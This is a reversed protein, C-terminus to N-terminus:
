PLRWITVIIGKQIDVIVSLSDGDLDPGDVKWCKAEAASCGVANCLAHLVHHVSAGRRAARSAEQRTKFLM